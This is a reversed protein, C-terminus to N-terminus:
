QIATKGPLGVDRQYFGDNTKTTREEACRAKNRCDEGSAFRLPADIKPRARDTGRSMETWRVLGPPNEKSQM